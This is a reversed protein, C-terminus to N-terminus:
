PASAPCLVPTAVVEATGGAPSAMYAVLGNGDPLVAPQGQGANIGEGSITLPTGLPDGSAALTQARVQHSAVPGETWSLLFRAGLVGAIGPSMAQEGLGGPPIAFARPAGPAEGPQWRLLRLMWPDSAAARDAWVVMVTNGSVALAPSGIQPGLGPVQSLQGMPTKDAHIAGLYIATGQRFAVADGGDELAVARLAEVPTDSELAWITQPADNAQAGWVLKGEAEGLVFSSDGSVTRALAIRDGKHDSDAVAVVSKRNLEPVLRKIPDHSHHKATATVGLSTPDLTIALGDKDAVVFGLAIRNHAAVAEVGTRIHAKPAVVRASGVLACPTTSAAPPSPSAAQENAPVEARESPAPVSSAMPSPSPASTEIPRDAPSSGVIRLVLGFTGIAVLLAGGCLVGLMWRRRPEAWMETLDHIIRRSPSPPVVAPFAETPLEREAPTADAANPAAPPADPEPPADKLAPMALTPMAVTSLATGSPEVSTAASSPDVPPLLATPLETTVAEGTPQAVMASDATSPAPTPSPAPAPSPAPEPEEPPPPEPLSPESLPPSVASTTPPQPASPVATTLGSPDDSLLYSGSLDEVSPQKPPAADGIADESLLVSGTIEEISEAKPRMPPLPAPPAKPITLDIKASGDNWPPAQTVAKPAQAGPAPVNIPSGDSPRAESRPDNGRPAGGYLM